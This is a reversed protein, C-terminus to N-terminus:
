ISNIIEYFHIVEVTQIDKLQINDKKIFTGNVSVEFIPEIINFKLLQHFQNLIDVKLQAQISNNRKKYHNLFSQICYTKQYSSEQAFAQIISLKVQLNITSTYVFFSPPFHFPYYNEMLPEAVAIQIYWPGNKTKQIANVVPFFLLKRFRQDSVRVSYPPIGMLDDFFQLFQKRRYSNINVQLAKMFDVLQFEVTIYLQDNVFEKKGSELYSRVFSIFQLLRYFQIEELNTQTLFYRKLYFGVLHTKPKVLKLRLSDVLWHTFCTRLSLSKKLHNLYKKLVMAEFETFVGNILLRGLRNAARKKTELEFKFASSSEIPYIRVFYSSSERDGLVLSKDLRDIFASQDKFNTEFTQKSEEFFDMFYTDDKQNPRIYNIDIRNVTLSPCNLQSISFIGRKILFYIRRSNIGKFHIYLNGKNWPNSEFQFILVHQFNKKYRITLYEETDINYSISNFKYEHFIEAIERMRSKLKPLSFSLYDLSLNEDSFNTNQTKPM